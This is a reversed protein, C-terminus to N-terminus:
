PKANNAGTKRDALDKLRDGFYRTGLYGIIVSAFYAWEDGVGFLALGDKVFWGFVACMLADFLSRAVGDGNYRGRLYAMVGALAGAVGEEKVSVVWAIIAAWVDPSKTPM